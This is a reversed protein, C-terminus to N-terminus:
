HCVYLEAPLNTVGALRAPTCTQGTPCQVTPQNGPHCMTYTALGGTPPTSHCSIDWAIADDVNRYENAFCKWGLPCDEAGDCSEKGFACFDADTQCVGNENSDYNSFCCVPSPLQCSQLPAGSTFCAVCGARNPDCNPPPPPSDPVSADPHRRAEVLTSPDDTSVCGALLVALLVVHKM